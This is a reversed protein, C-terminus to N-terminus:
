QLFVAKNRLMDNLYDSTHHTYERIEQLLKTKPDADSQLLARNIATTANFDGAGGQQGYMGNGVLGKLQAAWGKMREERDSYDAILDDLRRLEKLEDTSHDSKEDRAKKVVDDRAIIAQKKEQGALAGRNRLRSLVPRWASQYRAYQGIAGGADM